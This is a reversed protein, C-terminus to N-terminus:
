RSGLFLFLGVNSQETEQKILELLKLFQIRRCLLYELLRLGPNEGWPQYYSKQKIVPKTQIKIIFNLM